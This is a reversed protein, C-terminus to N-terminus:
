VSVVGEGKGRKKFRFLLVVQNVNAKGTRTIFCYLLPDALCNLSSIAQSIKYPYQIWTLSKCDNLFSCILMIIHVPGLCLLISLLIVTLLKAIHKREHEETAQNTKLAEFLGRTSFAVLLVPFVFGVFFCALNAWLSGGAHLQTVDFCTAINKNEHYLEEWAITAANFCVVMVWIAVSVVAATDVKRFFTYKLPHVVALYRDFAICCLLGSSTYFNTLLLYISMVCIHSGHIWLGRWLFDLWMSLGMAFILDSLALNFLYVGLENKQRIHQVSVYLSFVNSPIATLIIATYLLLFLMQFSDDAPLCNSHSTNLTFNEM